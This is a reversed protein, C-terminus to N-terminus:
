RRQRHLPERRYPPRSFPPPPPLLQLLFPLCLPLLPQRRLRPRRRPTVGRLPRRRGGSFRSRHLCLSRRSRPPRGVAMRSAASSVFHHATTAATKHDFRVRSPHAPAIDNLAAHCCLFPHPKSLFSLLVVYVCWTWLLGFCISPLLQPIGDLLVLRPLLKGPALLLSVSVHAGRISDPNKFSFFAVGASSGVAVLAVVSVRWCAFSVSVACTERRTLLFNRVGLENKAVM